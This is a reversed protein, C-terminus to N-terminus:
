PQGYDRKTMSADPSTHMADHFKENLLHTLYVIPALGANRSLTHLNAWTQAPLTALATPIPRIM